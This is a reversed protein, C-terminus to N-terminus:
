LELGMADEKIIGIIGELISGYDEFNGFIKYLDYAKQKDEICYLIEPINKNKLDEKLLEKYQKESSICILGNTDKWIVVSPNDVRLEDYFSTFLRISVIENKNKYNNLVQDLYDM